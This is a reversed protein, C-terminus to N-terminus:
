WEKNGIERSNKWEHKYEDSLRNGFREAYRVNKNWQTFLCDKDHKVLEKSLIKGLIVGLVCLERITKDKESDSQCLDNIIRFTECTNINPSVTRISM